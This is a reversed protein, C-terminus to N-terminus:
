TSNESAIERLFIARNEAEIEIRYLHSAFAQLKTDSLEESNSEIEISLKVLTDQLIKYHGNFTPLWMGLLFNQMNPSEKQLVNLLLRIAHLSEKEVHLIIRNISKIKNSSKLNNQSMDNQLQIIDSVLIEFKKKHEITAKRILM